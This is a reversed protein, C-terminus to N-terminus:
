RAPTIGYNDIMMSVLSTFIPAAAKSGAYGGIKPENVRVVIVYEPASGGVFGAFTGNYKDDHYGGNELDPIQATGTKGGIMYGDRLNPMGYLVHNKDFVYKLLGVMDRSTDASVSTRVAKPTTTTTKGSSDTSSEVLYPQYYTGGNVISSFAAGMQLVTSSMGQGFSMNAYQIELGFGEEPEPVSGTAEGTQEIGTVSGMNFHDTLYSHWRERAKSNIDGGGMQQLLYVAGTNLSLQLIDAVSKIGPGGDEEINNVTADGIRIRAPDNYTTNTNVVGQDLAAAATLPKMISGVELPASVVANGLVSLDTVDQLHTPDYTPYNAMAKVAGTKVEMILASGSTSRAKDLGAKLLDELQRQLGIDITLLLEEGAKPDTVINDTNSVLPVGAADTIAKLEGPQGRLREDLSQELGYQGEGDDNVFGLLQSALSGQPYTRYPTERTGIGAFKLDNLKTSQEKSLKKALIVYRTDPTKLKTMLENIDGGIIAAVAAAEKEPDKVFTPDAFLTYKKENLVLPITNDGDHARITGREAPIEYEKLQSQLAAKRYYDHRIIQLYFLRFLFVAMILSLFGYIFRVRTTTNVPNISPRSSSNTRYNPTVNPM